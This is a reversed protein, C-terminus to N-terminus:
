PGAGIPAAGIPHSGIGRGIAALGFFPGETPAHNALFWMVMTERQIDESQRELDTRKLGKPFRPTRYGWEALPRPLSEGAALALWVKGRSPRGATSDPM